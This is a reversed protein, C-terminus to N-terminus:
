PRKRHQYEALALLPWIRPYSHYRIYAERPIGVGTPYKERWGNERFNLVLWRVAKRIPKTDGQHTAMLGLLGWATQTPLSQGLPIFRGQLDSRCSEGFGGDSRQAQELWDRARCMAPHKVSQGVRRLGRAALSTGYIFSVGWRGRWSGDSQQASLLWAQGKQVAATTLGYSGLTDLSRGTVDPISPDTILGLMDGGLFVELLRKNVNKEFSGWGGDDNQLAELWRIGRRIRPAAVIVPHKYFPQLARLVAATDDIDPYLSNDGSFAWAGSKAEPAHHLWDATKHQQKLLLYQAAREMRVDTVRVGASALAQLALATDWIDSSFMQQAAHRPVVLRRIGSLALQVREDRRGYGLAMRSFIFLSTASLYGAITGDQEQRSLLFGECARLATDNAGSEREAPLSNGPGLLYGISHHSSVPFHYQLSSLIMVSPLHIRLPVSFDYLSLLSDPDRFIVHIHSDPLVSWPVQNAIALFVKTLSSTQMLGGSQLIRDEALQMSHSDRPVGALTLAFYAMVSSSLHFEQDPYLSWGGNGRQQRLLTERLEDIIPDRKVGCLLFTFLALSAAWPSVDCSFSFEGAASQNRFLREAADHLVAEIAWRDDYQPSTSMVDNGGSPGFAAVEVAQTILGKLTHPCLPMRAHWGFDDVERISSTFTRWLRRLSIAM